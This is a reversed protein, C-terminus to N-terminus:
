KEVTIDGCSNHIKLTVEAQNNNKDVTVNGLDTSADIYIDNVKMIKISGLDSEIKSDKLIVADEVVIDGCSNELDIESLVKEIEIKGFSNRAKVSTVTGLSINGASAQIHASTSSSVSINGYNNKVEIKYAAEVEVNGCDEDITMTAFPLSGISVDGYHNKIEIVGDYNEPIALSIKSIKQNFCFGICKKTTTGIELKDEKEEVKTYDKEGYITLHLSHDKSTIIEINGADTTIAIQNMVNDLVQDYVKEESVQYNGGTFLFRHNGNLAQVLFIILGIIFISLLCILAYIWGKNKM